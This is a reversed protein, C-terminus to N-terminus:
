LTAVIAPAIGVMNWSEQFILDTLSLLLFPAAEAAGKKPGKRQLEDDICFIEAVSCAHKHAAGLLLSPPAPL